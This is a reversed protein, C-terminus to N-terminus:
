NKSGGYLVYILYVMKSFHEYLLFLVFPNLSM